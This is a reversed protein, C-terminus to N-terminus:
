DRGKCGMRISLVKSQASTNLSFEKLKQKFMIVTLLCPSQAFAHPVAPSDKIDLWAPAGEVLVVVLHDESAPLLRRRWFVKEASECFQIVTRHIWATDLSISSSKKLFFEFTLNWLSLNSNPQSNQIRTSTTSEWGSTYLHSVSFFLRSLAKWYGEKRRQIGKEQPLKPHLSLFAIQRLDHLFAKELSSCCCPKWGWQQRPVNGEWALNVWLLQLWLRVKPVGRGLLM